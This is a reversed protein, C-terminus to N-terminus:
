TYNSVHICCYGKGPNILAKAINTIDDIITVLNNNTISKKAKDLLKKM